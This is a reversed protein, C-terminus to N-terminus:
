RVAQTVLLLPLSFLATVAFVAGIMGIPMVALAVTLLANPHRDCFGNVRKKIPEFRTNNLLLACLCRTETQLENM